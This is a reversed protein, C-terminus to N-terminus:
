LLMRQIFVEPRLYAPLGQLSEVVLSRPGLLRKLVLRSQRSACPCKRLLKAQGALMEHFFLQEILTGQLQSFDIAM